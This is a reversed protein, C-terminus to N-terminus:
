TYPAAFVGPQNLIKAGHARKPCTVLSMKV